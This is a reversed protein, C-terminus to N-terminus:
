DDTDHPPTMANAGFYDHRDIENVDTVEHWLAAQEGTWKSAPLLNLYREIASTLMERKYEVLKYEQTMQWTQKNM